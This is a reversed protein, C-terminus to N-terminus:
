LEYTRTEDLACRGGVEVRGGGCARAHLVSGRGQHIELDRRLQASLAIAAAGTAEDEAIGLDPAFSRARVTGAARDIWAWAYSQASPADAADLADVAEPGSLEEFGIPPAWAPEASIWTLGGERRVGVEGAPPRLVEPPEGLEALLWATGVHPHGAFPLEAAPTFIRLAGARRDEVFVTESFGLDRAIEQRRAAPMSAGDVFVGLPNGHEGTDDCFVRLVHLEAM